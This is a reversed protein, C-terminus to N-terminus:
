TFARDFALAIAGAAEVLDYRAHALGAPDAPGGDDILAALLVPIDAPSLARLRLALAALDDAGFAAQMRALGGMTLCLVRIRGDIQLLCEGRAANALM